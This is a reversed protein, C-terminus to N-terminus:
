SSPYFACSSPFLCYLIIRPVHTHSSTEESAESVRLLPRTRPPPAAAPAPTEVVPTEVVAPEVVPAPAEAVPEQV